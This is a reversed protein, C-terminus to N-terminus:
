RGFGAQAYDFQLPQCDGGQIERVRDAPLPFGFQANRMPIRLRLQDTTLEALLDWEHATWDEDDLGAIGELMHKFEDDHVEKCADAIRDDAASRGRQRMAEAFLTMYGGETIACARAGIPGHEFRHRARLSALTENEPWSWDRLADFTLPPDDPTALGEYLDAFLCYHRYEEYAERLITLLEQRSERNTLGTLDEEGAALRPVVGDFMEKYAQRAIWALDTQRSRSPSAWYVSFIEAEGSWLPANAEILARLEPSPAM